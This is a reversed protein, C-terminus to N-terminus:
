LINSPLGLSNAFDNTSGAPIYGIPIEAYSTLLGSITENFTGDGGCCVVLDFDNARAATIRCADGRAQTVRVTVDYNGRNFIEIIDTLHRNARRMGACPNIILLLKKM